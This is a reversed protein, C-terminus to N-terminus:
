RAGLAEVRRRVLATLEADPLPEADTFRVTGPFLSMHNKFAGFHILHRGRLDFTPMGYSITEVAEPALERVVRRLREFEARQAPAIGDLYAAITAM